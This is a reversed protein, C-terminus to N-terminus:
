KLKRWTIGYPKNTQSIPRSMDPRIDGYHNPSYWMSGDSGVVIRQPGRGNVGQTPVVWETYTPGNPLKPNTGNGYVKGDKLASSPQNNLIRQLTPELNVNTRVIRDNVMIPQNEITKPLSDMWAQKQEVTLQRNNVTDPHYPDNKVSPNGGSVQQGAPPKTRDCNNHVWVGDLNVNLGKIFYTHNTDVTLNYAQLAELKIDVSIVEYWENNSVLLKYGAKLNSADVWKGGKVVGHYVHGESSQPVDNYPVTFYPHIKNSVITQEQGTKSRVTVYVTEKYPNSYQALVQKYSGNGTTENLSYVWDGVSIQQIPTYGHNTKVQMDGRFSCTLNKYQSETISALNEGAKAEASALKAGKTAAGGIAMLAVDTGSEPFLIETAVYGIGALYYSVGSRPKEGVIYDM